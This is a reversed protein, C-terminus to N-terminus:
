INPTLRVRDLGLGQKHYFDYVEYFERVLERKTYLISKGPTINGSHEKLVEVGKYSNNDTDLVSPAIIPALPESLGQGKDTIEINFINSLRKAAVGLLYLSPHNFTFFLRKKTWEKKIIDSIIIDCDKERGELDETSKDRIEIENDNSELLSLGRDRGWAKFIQLDHYAALPGQLRTQNGLTLYRLWPTQGIWFINPYVFTKGNFTDKIWSSCAHEVPFTDLTRQALIIDANNYAKIARCHGDSTELHVIVTEIIEINSNRSLISAIPRAQCNGTIVIKIKEM